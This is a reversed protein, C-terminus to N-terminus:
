RYINGKCLLSKLHDVIIKFKHPFEPDELNGECTIVTQILDGDSDAAMVLICCILIKIIYIYLVKNLIYYIHLNKM